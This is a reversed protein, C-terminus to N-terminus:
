DIELLRFRSAADGETDPPDPKKAPAAAPQAPQAAAPAPQAPAPRQGPTSSVSLGRVPRQAERDRRAEAARQAEIQDAEAATMSRGAPIQTRRGAPMAQEVFSVGPPANSQPQGTAPAAATPASAPAAPAAAAATSPLERQEAGDLPQMRGGVRVSVRGGEVQFLSLEPLDLRLQLAEILAAFSMGELEPMREPQPAVLPAPGEVVYTQFLHTLMELLAERQYGGLAERIDQAIKRVDPREPTSM